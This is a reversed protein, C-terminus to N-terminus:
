MYRRIRALKDEPTDSNKGDMDEYKINSEPAITETEVGKSKKNLKDKLLVFLDTISYILFFTVTLVLLIFTLLLKSITSFLNSKSLALAKDEAEFWITTLKDKIM